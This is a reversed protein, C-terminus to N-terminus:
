DQNPLNINNEEAWEKVAKAAFPTSVQCTFRISDILSEHQQETLTTKNAHAYQIACESRMNDLTRNEVEKTLGTGNVGRFGYNKSLFDICEKETFFTFVPQGEHTPTFQKNATM